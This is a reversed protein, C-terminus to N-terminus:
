VLVNVYTGRPATLDYRFGDVVVFRSRPGEDTGRAPRPRNTKDPISTIRQPEVPDLSGPGRVPM